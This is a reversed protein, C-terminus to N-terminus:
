ILRYARRDAAHALGELQNLLVRTRAGGIVADHREGLHVVDDPNRLHLSVFLGKEGNAALLNGGDNGRGPKFLLQQGQNFVLWFTQEIYLALGDEFALDGGQVLAVDLFDSEDPAVLFLRDRERVDPVVVVIAVFFGALQKRDEARLSLHLAPGNKQVAVDDEVIRDELLQELTGGIDRQYHTQGPVVLLMEARLRRM